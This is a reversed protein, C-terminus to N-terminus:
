SQIRPPPWSVVRVWIRDLCLVILTLSMSFSFYIAPYAFAETMEEYYGRRTANGGGWLLIELRM